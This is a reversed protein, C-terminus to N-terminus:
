YNLYVWGTKPKLNRYNLHLVYFYTGVPLLNNGKLSGKNAKGEWKLSNNGKFILVGLRNYILLEHQLYVNYLGQINFWDNYSDGNPSFGQPIEPECDRAILEISFVEYCPETEIQIYIINNEVSCLYESPNLIAGINNYLDNLSAYYVATEIDFSTEIQILATTLNYIAEDNVTKCGVINDLATISFSEILEIGTEASNNTENIEAVVGNGTGDDDVIVSLMFNSGLSSDINLSISGFESSSIPIDNETQTQGILLENAYLAIPTNAPLLQTSNTNIVIYEILIERYNCVQDISEISVTADPLQSNLVTIINNVMVLDQGSTLQIVASTDGVNMTNQIDYFDIDMNFLNSENTFSNTGNFANDAPNLPPNNLTVGNMQLVENVALGADGEWALFGIKAGTTDIVNLNNLQITINNPVSELGDYINIQNLPLSPDSYIIIIAWGAFNTGTSCYMESIDIEELNSLTYIGNGETQILETVDKFAAFFQRDSDLTYQFTRDPTIPITNLSINFDGAGSGAWYLYSAEIIQTNSVNLTASSTTNISCNFNSNNEVTNLTNGIATYDLRGNLQDYLSIEQALIFNSVLVIFCFCYAKNNQTM